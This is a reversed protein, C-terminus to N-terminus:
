RGYQKSCPEDKEGATSMAGDHYTDVPHPDLWFSGAREYWLLLLGRAMGPHFSAEQALFSLGPGCTLVPTETFM